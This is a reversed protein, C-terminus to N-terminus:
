LIIGHVNRFDLESTIDLVSSRLRHVEELRRTRDFLDDIMGNLIVHTKERTDVKVIFNFNKIM